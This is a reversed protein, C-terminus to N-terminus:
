KETCDKMIHGVKSCKYCVPVSSRFRPRRPVFNRPQFQMSLPHMPLLFQPNSQMNGMYGFSPPANMNGYSSNANLNDNNLGFGIMNCDQARPTFTKLLKQEKDLISEEEKNCILKLVLTATEYDDADDQDKKEAIKKELELVKEELSKM